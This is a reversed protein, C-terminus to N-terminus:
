DSHLTAALTTHSKPKPSSPGPHLTSSSSLSKPCLSSTSLPSWSNGCIFTVIISGLESTFRVSFLLLYFICIAVVIMFVFTNVIKTDKFNSRKIKRTLVSMIVLALCLGVIECTYFLSWILIYDSSCDQVVSHFSQKTSPTLIERDHLAVPDLTSELLLIFASFGVIAITTGFLTWDSCKRGIRGFHHFIYYIRIMRVLLPALIFNIELIGTWASGQCVFNGAAEGLVVSFSIVRILICAFSLYCGIFLNLSFYPSTAKIEPESRFVLFLVM